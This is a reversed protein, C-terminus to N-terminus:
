WRWVPALLIASIVSRTALPKLGPVIIEDISTGAASLILRDLPISQNSSAIPIFPPKV